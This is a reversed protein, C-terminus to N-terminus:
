PREEQKLRQRKLQAVWERVAEQHERYHRCGVQYLWEYISSSPVLHEEEVERAIGVLAAHLNKLDRLLLGWPASRLDEVFKRNMERIDYPVGREGRVLLPIRKLAEHHWGVMHSLLDKLSWRSTAGIKAAEKPALREILSLFDAHAKEMSAILAQRSLKPFPTM